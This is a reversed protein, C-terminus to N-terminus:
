DLSILDDSEYPDLAEDCDGDPEEDEEDIPFCVVIASDKLCDACLTLEVDVPAYNYDLNQIFIEHLLVHWVSGGYESDDGLFPRSRRSTLDAYYMELYSVGHENEKPLFVIPDVSLFNEDFNFSIRFKYFITDGAEPNKTALLEELGAGKSVIYLYVPIDEKLTLASVAM